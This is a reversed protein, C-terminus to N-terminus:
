DNILRNLKNMLEEYTAEFYLSKRGNKVLELHDSFGQKKVFTNLTYLSNPINLDENGHLNIVLNQINKYSGKLLQGMSHLYNPAFFILVIGFGLYAGALASMALYGPSFRNMSKIKNEAACALKELDNDIM